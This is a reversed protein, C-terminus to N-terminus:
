GELKDLKRGYRTAWAAAAARRAVAQAEHQRSLKNEAPFGFFVSKGLQGPSRSPAIWQPRENYLERVAAPTLWRTLLNIGASLAPHNTKEVFGGLILLAAEQNEPLKGPFLFADFQGGSGISLHYAKREQRLSLTALDAVPLVTHPGDNARIERSLLILAGELTIEEKALQEDLLEALPMGWLPTGGLIARAIWFRTFSGIM